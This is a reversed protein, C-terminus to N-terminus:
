RRRVKQTNKFHYKAVARLLDDGGIEWVRQAALDTPAGAGKHLDTGCEDSARQLGDLFAARALISAAAVVPHREARPVQVLRGPKVGRAALTGAVLADRAFRDIVVTDELSGLAAPGRVRSFLAAHVEAHLDALLTNINPTAAHLENYQRPEIVRVEHEFAAEVKGALMRARSDSLAKSDTVGIEELLGLQDPSAHCAAVVLPGFYDGKGTEDSGATPKDFALDTDAPKTTKSKSADPAGDLFRAVFTDLDAGQLVVKGSTYCTLVVGLAKVSFRAHPVRRWEADPPLGSVLREQLATAAAAGAVKLVRTTQTM